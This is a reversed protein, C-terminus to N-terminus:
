ENVSVCVCTKRGHKGSDVLSPLSFECVFLRGCALQFLWSTRLAPGTVPPITHTLPDRACLMRSVNLLPRSPQVCSVGHLTVSDLVDTYEVHYLRLSGDATLGVLHSGCTSLECLPTTSGLRHRLALDRKATGLREIRFFILQFRPFSQLSHTNTLSLSLNLSHTLTFTLFFLLLFFFLSYRM